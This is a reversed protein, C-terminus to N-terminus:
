KVKGKAFLILNKMAALEEPKLQYIDGSAGIQIKIIKSKELLELGKSNLPMEDTSDINKLYILTEDFLIYCRDLNNFDNNDFLSYKIHKEGKNDIGYFVAMNPILGRNHTSCFYSESKGNVLSEDISHLYDYGNIKVENMDGAIVFGVTMICMLIVFLLKKM